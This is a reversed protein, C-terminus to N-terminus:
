RYGPRRAIRPPGTATPSDDDSGSTTQIVGDLLIHEIIKLKPM